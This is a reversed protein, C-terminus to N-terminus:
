SATVRGGRPKGRDLQGKAMRLPPFTTAGDTLRAYTNVNTRVLFGADVLRELSRACTEEDLGWLREAQQRTLKLGPMEIYESFIRHLVQDSIGKPLHSSM